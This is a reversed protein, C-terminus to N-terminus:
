GPFSQSQCLFSVLRHRPLSSQAKLYINSETPMFGIQQEFLLVTCLSDRPIVLVQINSCEQFQVDRIMTGLSAM